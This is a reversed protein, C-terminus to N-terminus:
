RGTEGDSNAAAALHGAMATEAAGGQGVSDPLRQTMSDGAKGHHGRKEATRKGRGLARRWQSM